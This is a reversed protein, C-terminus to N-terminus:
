AQARGAQQSGSTAQQWEHIMAELYRLPPRTDWRSNISRLLRARDDAPLARACRAYLEVARDLKALEQRQIDRIQDSVQQRERWSMGPFDRQKELNRRARNLQDLDAMAQLWLSRRSSM